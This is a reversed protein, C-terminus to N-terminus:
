ITKWLNPRDLDSDGKTCIFSADSKYALLVKTREKSFPEFLHPVYIEDNSELFGAISLLKKLGFKFDIYEYNRKYLFTQMASSFYNSTQPELFLETLRFARSNEASVVILLLLLLFVKEDYIGVLEYSYNPHNFYRENPINSKKSGIM